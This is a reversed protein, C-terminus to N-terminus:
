GRPDPLSDEILSLVPWAANYHKHLFIPDRRRYLEAGLRDAIPLVTREHRCLNPSVQTISGTAQWNLCGCTHNCRRAVACDRCGEKERDSEARIAARRQEDVGHKLSGICWRSDPGASTFQVCPFLFGDPDVSIQRDALECREHHHCERNIHSSIKTEFPSFYFKSGASSWQQYLKALRRYSRELAQWHEERWDAAYNLSVILYRVKLEDHLFCMSDALLHATDPNVVSMVSSYPRAALLLKLRPLVRDFSSSGDAMRRHADHAERVGDLSLAVLVDHRLSFELFTEDLDLAM